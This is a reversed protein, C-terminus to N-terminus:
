LIKKSTLSLILSSKNLLEVWMYSAVVPIVDLYKIKEVICSWSHGM